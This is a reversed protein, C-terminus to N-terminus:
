APSASISAVWAGGPAVGARHAAPVARRAEARTSPSRWAPSPPAGSPSARWTWTSRRDESLYLGGPRGLDQALKSAINVPMGAIDRGGSPLEFLLVPGVDIGIRCSIAERALERRFLQAFDLAAPIADFVYIGLPGVVKVEEGQHSALHRLGTDKMRASLSLNDFLALEPTEAQQAQREILM